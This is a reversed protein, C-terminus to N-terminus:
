SRRIRAVATGHTNSEGDFDTIVQKLQEHGINLAHQKKSEGDARLTDNPGPVNPDAAALGHDAGGTADETPGCADCKDCMVWVRHKGIAGKMTISAVSECWPCNGIASM